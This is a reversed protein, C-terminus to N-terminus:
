NRTPNPNLFHVKPYKQNPIPSNKPITNAVSIKTDKEEKQKEYEETKRIGDYFGIKEYIRHNKENRRSRKDM